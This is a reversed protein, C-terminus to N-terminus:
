FSDRVRWGTRTRSWVPTTRAAGGFSSRLGVVHTAAQEALISVDIGARGDCPRPRRDLQFRPPPVFRPSTTVRQQQQDASAPTLLAWSRPSTQRSIVPSIESSPTTVPVTSLIPTRLVRSLLSPPPPQKYPTYPSLGGKKGIPDSRLFFEKKDRVPPNKQTPSPPSRFAENARVGKVRRGSPTIHRCPKTLPTFAFGGM